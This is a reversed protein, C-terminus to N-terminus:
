LDLLDSRININERVTQTRASTKQDKKKFLLNIIIILHNNNNQIATAPRQPAGAFSQMYNTELIM